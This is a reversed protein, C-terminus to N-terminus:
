SNHVSIITLSLSPASFHLSTGARQALGPPGEARDWGGYLSNLLTLKLLLQASERQKLSSLTDTDTKLYHSSSLVPAASSKTKM